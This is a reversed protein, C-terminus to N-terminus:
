KLGKLLGLLNKASDLLANDWNAPTKKVYVELMGILDAEYKAELSVIVKGEPTVDLSAEGYEGLKQVLEKGELM